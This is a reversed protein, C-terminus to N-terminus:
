EDARVRPAEVAAQPNIGFDLTNSIMQVTTQLIGHGGPTGMAMWPSGSGGLVVVPAIPSAVKKHPGIVNPSSRDLDFWYGMDNLLVGTEGVISCGGFLWGLTQTLSVLNGDSDATVLHTTHKPALEDASTYWDGSTISASKPDLRDRQLAVHEEALVDVYSASADTIPFAVRDLRALKVAEVLTHLHDASLYDFARVDFGDLIRLTELVQFSAFPPPLTNITCDRYKCIAPELWLADKAAAMDELTVLGG